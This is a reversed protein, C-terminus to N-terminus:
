NIFFIRALKIFFFGIVKKLQNNIVTFVNDKAYEFVKKFSDNLGNV